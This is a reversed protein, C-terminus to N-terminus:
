GLMRTREIYSPLGVFLWTGASVKGNIIENVSMKAYSDSLNQGSKSSQCVESAEPPSVQTTIDKRFWFMGDACANRKQATVM